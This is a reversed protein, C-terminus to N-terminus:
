SRSYVNFLALLHWQALSTAWLALSGAMCAWCGSNLGPIGGFKDEWFEMSWLYVFLYFCVLLHLLLFYGKKVWMRKQPYVLDSEMAWAPRSRVLDQLQSCQGWLCSGCHFGPSRCVFAVDNVEQWLNTKWLVGGKPAQFKKKTRKKEKERHVSKNDRIEITNIILPLTHSHPHRCTVPLVHLGSSELGSNTRRKWQLIWLCFKPWWAKTHCTRKGGSYRASGVFRNKQPATPLSYQPSIRSGQTSQLHQVM